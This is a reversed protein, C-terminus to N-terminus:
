NTHGPASSYSLSFLSSYSHQSSSSFVKDFMCLQGIYTTVYFLFPFWGVWAFLQVQCVARIQPPLRRMSKLVQRFFSVVGKQNKGSTSRAELRPDRERITLCSIAITSGLAISAIVCLGKFQTNGFFPFLKPLHIYGSLYGLINGVGSARGAWANASGQQHPPACDVIFARVAAQVTNIAFDLIYVFLVAVAITTWRVAQTEPGVGFISFISSVIVRTWALALLSVITALTGAIM